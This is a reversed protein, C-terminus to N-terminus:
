PAGGACVRVHPIVAYPEQRPHQRRFRVNPWPHLVRPVPLWTDCISRFRDWTLRRGKQSRRRLTRLWICALDYRFQSLQDVNYPVAFYQYYGQLVRRLWRGTAPVPDTRRRRLERKLEQLKRRQRKCVTRRKIVFRGKRTRSAIHTFGLFAFTDPKGKGASRRRAAAHRGFELLRSKDPHLDLGFRQLREAVQHFFAEADARHEFGLVIDDAYRVLVMAGRARHNRWQQAWLDFAYHLYINALIPSIVAGQPSGEETPRWRDGDVVGAHLWKRILRLLRRDAVRHAVFRMLWDHQIHDFYGRIDLDVVWNIPRETLAVYLADLAHHQSRGPRFGYSFGIFDEEFIAELVTVVAQQVIKDELAAIGLLREGGDEKAIRVRRSPRARYSGRHIRDHLDALRSPLDRGYDLWTVGDVGPAAKRKLREYSERLCEVDVHHLLASLRLQKDRRAAARVGALGRPAQDPGLTGAAPPRGTNEKALGRREVSEAPPQGSHGPQNGKNM